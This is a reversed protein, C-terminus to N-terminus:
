KTPDENLVCHIALLKPIYSQTILPLATLPINGNYQNYLKKIKTEGANYAYIMLRHDGNFKEELYKFYNIAIDTSKAPCFLDSKNTLGFPKMYHYKKLQWLGHTDQYTVKPNLNSEIVMIYAFEQPLKAITLQQKVYDIFEKNVEFLKTYFEKQYKNIIFNHKKTEEHKSLIINLEIPTITEVTVEIMDNIHTYDFFMLICLINIFCILISKQIM